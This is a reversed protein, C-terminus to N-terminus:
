WQGQMSSSCHLSHHSVMLGLNLVTMGTLMYDPQFETFELASTDSREVSSLVDFSTYVKKEYYIYTVIAAAALLLLVLVVLVAVKRRHAKIKKQFDDRDVEVTRFKHKQITAM